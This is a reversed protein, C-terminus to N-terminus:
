TVIEKTMVEPLKPKFTDCNLSIEIRLWKGGSLEYLYGDEGLCYLMLVHNPKGNENVETFHVVEFDKIRM